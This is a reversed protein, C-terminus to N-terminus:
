PEVPAVELRGLLEAERSRLGSATARYGFAVGLGIILSAYWIWHGLGADFLLGGVVPGIGFGLSMMVGFVAQYRGRMDIPALNATVTQSAPIIVMEGLTFIIVAIEFMVGTAVFGILGFGIAYLAAGLALMRSRDREDVWRAIPFQFLVVLLANSALMLGYHEEPIGYLGRMYVPFTTNMQAYVIGIIASLAIFVIFPRDKLIQLYGSSQAAGATSTQNSAASIIEPKTERLRAAIIWAFILSTVADAVFLPLYADPRLSGDPLRQLALLGAAVTPGLAVGANHAVRMLGFAAGRRNPPVLDTITAASAPQFMPTTLGFLVIDILLLPVNPALAMGMSFTAEACLSFVMIGKRGFRDTLHGGLPGGILSGVVFLSGLLGAEALTFHFKQTFYLTFIPFVMSGGFSNILAGGVMTWISEPYERRAHYLRRSIQKYRRTLGNM